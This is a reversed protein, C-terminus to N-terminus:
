GCGSPGIMATVRNAAYELNVDKVAQNDGYYASLGSLTVAHGDDPGGAQVDRPTIRPSRQQESRTPQPRPDTMPEVKPDRTTQNPPM